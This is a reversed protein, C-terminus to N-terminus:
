DKVRSADLNCANYGGRGCLVSEAVNRQRVDFACMIYISYREVPKIAHSRGVAPIAVRQHSVYCEIVEIEVVIVTGCCPAIFPHMQDVHHVHDNKIGNEIILCGAIRM